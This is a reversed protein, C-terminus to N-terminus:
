SSPGGSSASPIGPASTATSLFRKRRISTPRGCSGARNMPALPFCPWISPGLREGIERFQHENYGTDGAFWFSFDDIQIAWGAWLTEYRDWPSRASWHQLPTATVTLEGFRREQWWDFEEVRAPGIGARTFWAKLGLPVLWRPNDGLARVSQRDLHDYHNHSILVFDIRPLQEVTLAPATLRKPGAFSVPSARESFIPDALVNVGRYQILVSAHGIWTVQPAAGPHLIRELDAPVVPVKGRAKKPDPFEVDGFWRMRWYAFPSTKKREVYPNRFGGEGHHLPRQAGPGAACCALGVLLLALVCRGAGSV